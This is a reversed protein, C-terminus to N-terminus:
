MWSEGFDMQSQYEINARRCFHQLAQEPTAQTLEPDPEHELRVPQISPHRVGHYGPMDHGGKSCGRLLQISGNMTLVYSWEGVRNVHGTFRLENEGDYTYVDVAFRRSENPGGSWELVEAAFKPAALIDAAIAQLTTLNDM